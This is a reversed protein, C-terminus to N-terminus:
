PADPQLTQTASLHDPLLRLTFTQALKAIHVGEGSDSRRALAQSKLAMAAGVIWTFLGM